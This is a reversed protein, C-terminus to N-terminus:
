AAGGDTYFTDSWGDKTTKVKRTKIKKPAYNKSHM